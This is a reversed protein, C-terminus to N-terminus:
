KLPLQTSVSRRVINTVSNPNAQVPEALSTTVQPRISRPAPVRVSSVPSVTNAKLTAVENALTKLSENITTIAELVLGQDDTVQTEVYSAQRVIDTITAGLEQLAPNISQLKEEYTGVMSKASTVSTYLNEVSIDLPSKEKRADKPSEPADSKKPLLDVVIERILDEVTKNMSNEVLSKMMEKKEGHDKEEATEEDPEKEEDAKTSNSEEAVVDSDSMEVLVNSKTELAAAVIEDVLDDDKVISSADDKRTLKKAMSREVKMSTRPNVPVRTLALHVLYGDLYTKDGNGKVCDPCVDRLSKRRFIEGDEGHKHALDLFAISIRIKNENDLKEDEKLSKWVAKGLPSNEMVGRAKLQEGDVFLELVKGPVAKGNGDSYHAISLYPMGGMWYESCIMDRFPAPPPVNNKIYGLMTNYLSVSMREGYLDPSTDSNVAAWRMIGDQISAKTIYMDFNHISSQAM